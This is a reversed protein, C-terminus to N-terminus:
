FSLSCFIRRVKLSCVCRMCLPPTWATKRPWWSLYTSTQTCELSLPARWRGHLHSTLLASGRPHLAHFLLPFFGERERGTQKLPPPQILQSRRLGLLFFFGKLFRPPPFFMFCIGEFLWSTAGTKKEKKKEVERGGLGWSNELPPTLQSESIHAWRQQWRQRSSSSSSSTPAGGTLRESPGCLASSGAGRGCWQGYEPVPQPPFCLSGSLAYWNASTSRSTLYIIFLVFYILFILFFNFNDKTVAAIFGQIRSIGRQLLLKHLHVYFKM